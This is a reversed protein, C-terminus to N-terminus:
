LNFIKKISIILEKNFFIFMIIMCIVAIIFALLGSWYVFNFLSLIIMIMSIFSASIIYSVYENFYKRDIVAILFMAINLAASLPAIVYNFSWKNFGTFIDIIIILPLVIFFEIILKQRMYLTKATFCVYTFYATIVSSASIVSWNFKNSTFIDIIILAIIATISCVLILKNINIKNQMKYFSEYSPYEEPIIKNQKNNFEKFCLPCKNKNTKIELNCNNCYSM